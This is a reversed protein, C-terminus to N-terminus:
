GIQEKGQALAKNLEDSLAACAQDVSLEDKIAKVLYTEITTNM